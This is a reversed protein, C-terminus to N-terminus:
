STRQERQRLRRNEQSVRQYERVKEPQERKLREYRYRSHESTGKPFPNDYKKTTKGYCARSCFIRKDVKGAEWTKGCSPCSKKVKVGVRKRIPKDHLSETKHYFAHCAQCLTILNELNNNNHNEDIHHVVLFPTIDKDKCAIKWQCINNDRDFVLRRANNLGNYNNVLSGDNNIIQWVRQRSVNELKGIVALTM